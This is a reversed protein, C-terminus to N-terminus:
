YFRWNKSRHKETENPKKKVPLHHSFKTTKKLNEEYSRDVNKKWVNMKRTQIIRIFLFLAILSLFLILSLSFIILTKKTGNFEFSSLILMLLEHITTNKTLADSNSEIKNKKNEEIIRNEENLRNAANLKEELANIKEEFVAMRDVADIKNDKGQLTSIKNSEKNVSKKLSALSIIKETKISKTNVPVSETLNKLESVAADSSLNKFYDEQPLTITSGTKLQNIDNKEFANPNLNFIAAIMQARSIGQIQNERAIKYVTDEANNIVVSNLKNKNVGLKSIKKSNDSGQNVYFNIERVVKKKGDNVNILLDFFSDSIEKASSIFLVDEGNQNKVLMLDLQDSASNKEIGLRRYMEDSGLSFSLDSLSERKDLLLHIEAKLPEQLQSHVIIKGLELSLVHQSIFFLFFLVGRLLNIHYKKM